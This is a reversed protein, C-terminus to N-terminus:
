QPRSIERSVIREVIGSTSYGHSRDLFVIKPIADRATIPRGEYDDGLFRVDFNGNRMIDTLEEETAYFLTDDVFRISELIMKREDATFYPQRKGPNIEASFAEARNIALTLHDCHRNCDELMLVHGPHYLDFVGCAFGRTM